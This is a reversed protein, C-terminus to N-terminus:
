TVEALLIATGVAIIPSLGAATAMVNWAPEGSVSSVTVGEQGYFVAIDKDIRLARVVMYSDEYGAGAGTTWYEIEQDYRALREAQSQGATKGKLLSDISQWEAYFCSKEPYAVGPGERVYFTFPERSGFFALAGMDNVLSPGLESGVLCSNLVVIRGAMRRANSDGTQMYVTTCEVTWTDKAGHGCGAFLIPDIEALARNIPDPMASGGPAEAMTFAVNQNQAMIERLVVSSYMLYHQEPTIFLFANLNPM